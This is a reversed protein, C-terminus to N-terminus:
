KLVGVFSDITFKEQFIALSSICFLAGKSYLTNCANAFGAEVLHRDFADLLLLCGPIQRAAPISKFSLSGAILKIGYIMLKIIFTDPRFFLYLNASNIVIKCYLFSLSVEIKVIPLNPININQLILKLCNVTNKYFYPNSM